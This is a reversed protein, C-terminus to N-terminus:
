FNAAERVQVYSNGQTVIDQVAVVPAPILRNANAIKMALEDTNLSQPAIERSVIGGGAFYNPASAGGVPFANNFAMFHRAANRNMVGILEGQEAEFQTGDAGTFLTGGASHRNGGINFLAGKEAKPAKTSTIKKVNAVGAAVAAGAAVAGLAPGVVPIGSMASYASVASKYTDITAQAVAMAKGAASEKGMITALNGFTSNALDLKNNMVTTETDKRLKAYKKEILDKDAGTKEAAELEQAKQADLRQLQTGLDYDLNETEVARKNELDIAAKTDQQQKVTADLQQKQEASANEIRTKEQEFEELSMKKDDLLKQYIAIEAASNEDLRQKEATVMEESLLKGAEIKSQNAELYTQIEKKANEIAVNKQVEALDKTINANAIDLKLKDNATKKSADYEAQAIKQKRRAVEEAFALKDKMAKGEIGQNALLLDLQLKENEISDQILQQKRQRRKMEANEADQAAKERAQQQQKLSNAYEDDLKKQRAIGESAIEDKKKEATKLAEIEEDSFQKVKQLKQLYAFGEKQLRKEEEQTLNAGNKLARIAINYAENGFKVRNNYAEEEKKKLEDTAKIREKESLTMDQSKRRLEDLTNANKQATVEQLDMEAKLEQQAKKLNYAEKAAEAAGTTINKFFTGASDGSTFLGTFANKVTEAVAGLAAMVQEVKEVIPTFNKFVAIGLQVAIVIATIIAGIPNSVFGWAAKTMGGIGEAIGGFANKLLPGTGGVENARSILGSLGGNFINIQNFSEGVMDKYYNLSTVLKTNASGNESLWKNNESLGANLEIVRKQYDKDSANLEKKIGILKQNNALYDSETSKLEELVTKVKQKVAVRNADTVTQQIVAINQLKETEILRKLAEENAQFQKKGEDGKKILKDQQETLQKIGEQTKKLSEELSKSDIELSAM